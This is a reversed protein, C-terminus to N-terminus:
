YSAQVDVEQVCAQQHRRPAWRWPGDRITVDHLESLKLCRWEGEPPLGKSSEGGFQFFLAQVEGDPGRGLVHPCMERRLGHYTALVQRKKRVADAIMEYVPDSM